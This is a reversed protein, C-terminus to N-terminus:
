ERAELKESWITRLLIVRNVASLTFKSVVVRIEQLSSLDRIEM